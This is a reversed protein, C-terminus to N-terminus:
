DDIHTNVFDYYGIANMPWNHVNNQKVIRQEGYWLIIAPAEEMAIREAEILYGFTDDLKANLSLDYLEDFASNKLRFTNPFSEGDDEDPVDRGYFLSLFNQPHPYDAIWGGSYFLSQGSKSKNIKAVFGIVNIKIDIGLNEKLMKAVTEALVVNKGSGKNIDLEITPFGEGDPYGAEELLAKAKDVDYNYVPIQSYDYKPFGPPTIGHAPSEERYNSTFNKKLQEKDIAYNFAQRVLKNDFPAKKINFGYYNVSLVPTKEETVQGDMANLIETFQEPKIRSIISLDGNKFIDVQDKLYGGFSFNIGDVYPLQVGKADKEHYNPNRELAVLKNMQVDKVIFPGTGVMLKNGYNDYAEKPFIYTFPTALTYLFLANPHELTIQFTHDDIVKLGEVHIDDHNVSMIYFYNAGRVNDKFTSFFGKNDDSVSCLKDFCYMVDNATLKRGKGGPFCKDDHFFVNKKLHFTYTLHDDSIEWKEALNPQISLDEKHFKVLGEFIQHGIKGGVVDITSHPFISNYFEPHHINITGGPTAETFTSQKKDGSCAAFILAFFLTILLHNKM